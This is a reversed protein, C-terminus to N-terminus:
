LVRFSLETCGGRGGNRQDQAVLGPIRDQLLISIMWGVIGGVIVCFLGCLSGIALGIILGVLGTAWSGFRKLLMVEAHSFCIFVTCFLENGVRLFFVAARFLGTPDSGNVPDGNSYGYGPSALSLPDPQTFRAV